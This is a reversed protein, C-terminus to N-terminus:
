GRQRGAIEFNGWSTRALHFAERRTGPFRRSGYEVVIRRLGDPLDFRVIRFVPDRMTRLFCHFPIDWVNANWLLSAPPFDDAESIAALADRLEGLFAAVPNRSIEVMEEVLEHAHLSMAAQFQARNIRGAEFQRALQPPTPLAPM